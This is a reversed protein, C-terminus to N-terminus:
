PVASHKNDRLQVVPYLEPEFEAEDGEADVEVMVAQSCLRTHAMQLRGRSDFALTRKDHAFGLKNCYM